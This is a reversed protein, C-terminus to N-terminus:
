FAGQVALGVHNGDIMATVAPPERDRPAGVFWLVIGTGLAAAGLVGAGTALNARTAARRALELDKEPQAHKWMSRADLALVSMAILGAGGIAGAVV